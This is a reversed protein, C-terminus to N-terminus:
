NAKKEQILLPLCIQNQRGNKKDPNLYNMVSCLRLPFINFYNSLLFETIEPDRHHFITEMYVSRCSDHRRVSKTCVKNKRPVLHHRSYHMFYLLYNIILPKYDPMIGAIVGDDINTVTRFLYFKMDACFNFSNDNLPLVRM